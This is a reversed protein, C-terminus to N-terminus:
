AGRQAGYFDARRRFAEAGGEMVSTIAQVVQPAALPAGVIPFGRRGDSGLQVVFDAGGLVPINANHTSFILQGNPPRAVISKILTDAIFANDIHDEPQDVILLREVHRLVLPLIVTCRQGTSLDAIDKHDAGDLLSFTVYDEVSVTAISGLDADKLAIVAKAARDLTMSGRTAVLEYDDNEIAELLERPSIRKALTGVLDNYRLGSGRLAEVLATSFADTQGGRMVDIRIRPGLTQNLTLAARARADYRQTRITELADLATSRRTVAFALAAVRSAQVGRLSELQAKRERLTQGRRVIEGAGSQINEVDRRLQRAQDEVGIKEADIATALQAAEGEVATLEQLACRIHEHAKAVRTRLAGLPDEGANAPWAESASMSQITALGSKWRSVAQHFRQVVAAAVGKVAITGALVNLQGTRAHADASLGALQQEHPALQELQAEISPLETIQASLQDLDKRIADAEVTLSRVTAVAESEASVLSRQDGIFGDLLRLRGGPQLGVTEIETQSLIIPALYPASARPVDENASRSVAIRRDGDVLTLTVQGSGLVSLAHERSRRTTEPTYGEVNLCFRILEILSTKGTGRAGIVVNLGPTPSIDFGNLFGEEIQIREIHM